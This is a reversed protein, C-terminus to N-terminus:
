KWFVHREDSSQSNRNGKKQNCEHCILQLNTPDNSGGKSIPVIHDIQPKKDIGYVHTLDTGCLACRGKERHMLAEHLWSPWRCRQINLEKEHIIQAIALSFIGMLVRDAFLCQFAENAEIPIVAQIKRYLWWNCEDMNRPLDSRSFININFSKLYTEAEDYFEEDMKRRAYDWEAKLYNEICNHLLTKKSTRAAREEFLKQPQSVAEAFDIIDNNENDRCVINLSKIRQTMTAVTQQAYPSRYKEFPM